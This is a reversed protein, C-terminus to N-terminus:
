DRDRRTTKRSLVSCVRALVIKQVLNVINNVHTVKQYWLVEIKVHWIQYIMASLIALAVQKQFKSFCSRQISRPLGTVTM